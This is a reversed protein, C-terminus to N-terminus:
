SSMIDMYVREFPLQAHKRSRARIEQHAKGVMYSFAKTTCKHIAGTVDKIYYSKYGDHTVKILIERVALMNKVSCQQAHNMNFLTNSLTTTAGNDVTLVGTEKELHYEVSDINPNAM